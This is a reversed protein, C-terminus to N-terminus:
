APCKARPQALGRRLLRGADLSVTAMTGFFQLKTMDLFIFPVGVLYRRSVPAATVRMWWSLHSLRGGDFVGSLGQVPFGSTPTAPLGSSIQPAVKTSMSIAPSCKEVWTTTADANVVSAM